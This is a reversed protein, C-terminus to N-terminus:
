QKEPLASRDILRMPSSSTFSYNFQTIKLMPICIFPKATFKSTCTVDAGNRTVENTVIAFGLGRGLQSELFVRRCQMEVVSDVPPSVESLKETFQHNVYMGTAYQAGMLAITVVPLLTFLLLILLVPGMDTLHLILILLTAWLPTPEREPEKLSGEASKQFSEQQSDQKQLTQREELSDQKGLSKLSSEKVEFSKLFTEKKEFSTQFSM